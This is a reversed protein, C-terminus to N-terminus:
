PWSAMAQQSVAGLRWSLGRLGRLPLARRKVRTATMARGPLRWPPVPARAGAGGRSLDRCGPQEQLRVKGWPTWDPRGAAPGRLSVRLLCRVTDEEQVSSQKQSMTVFHAGAERSVLM